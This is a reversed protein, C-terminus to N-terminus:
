MNPPYPAGFSSGPLVHNIGVIDNFVDLYDTSGSLYPFMFGSQSIDLYSGSGASHLAPVHQQQDASHPTLYASESEFPQTSSTPISGAHQLLTRAPILVQQLESSSPHSRLMIPAYSTTSVENNPSVYEADVTAIRDISLCIANLAQGYIAARSGKIGSYSQMLAAMDRVLNTLSSGQATERDTSSKVDRLVCVSIYTMVVFAYDCMYRLRDKVIPSMSTVGKLFEYAAASKDKELKERDLNAHESALLWSRLRYVAYRQHFRLQRGPAVFM